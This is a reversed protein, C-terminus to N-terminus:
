HTPAQACTVAGAQGRAPSGALPVADFASLSMNTLRPNLDCITDGPCDRLHWGLNGTYRTISWSRGGSFGSLQDPQLYYPAGIALNNTIAIRDTPNGESRGIQVAGEGILTNHRVVVTDHGTTVLQLTSGDARCLDQETMFFKHKFYSCHGVLVSNEILANGKVKVQNGANAMAHIRRLTVRTADAGDMYRLDLGDSTNHHVYADEILWQGGTDTTGLGDGYGGGRQAWCAWPAGSAMREGCGNWAIEVDRLVIRGANSGGEGINGDWGASGNRNLKVRELTWDRLGGANIGRAALGHIDLDHLWVNHSARAYLGVRAWPMADTCAAAPASHRYVCDSGDTIELHGVELNSSADLNLVRHTGAVGVLTPTAGSRGLVRTPQARSPGSPIPQMPGGDGIRYSGAGILLTDGGAIRAPGSAPLAIAPNNWACDANAAGSYAADARGNCQAADGGDTRVYYTTGGASTTAIPIDSGDRRGSPCLESVPETEDACATLSALAFAAM